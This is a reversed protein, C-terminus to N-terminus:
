KRSDGGTAASRSDGGRATGCGGFFKSSALIVSPSSQKLVSPVGAACRDNRSILLDYQDLEADEHVAVRATADGVFAQAGMGRINESTPKPNMRLNWADAAV